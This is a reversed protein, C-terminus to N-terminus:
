SWTLHKLLKWNEMTTTGSLVHAVRLEGGKQKSQRSKKMKRLKIM